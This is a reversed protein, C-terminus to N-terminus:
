AVENTARSEALSGTEWVDSGACNFTLTATGGATDKAQVYIYVTGVTASPLTVTAAGAGTYDVIEVGATGTINTGTATDTVTEGYIQPAMAIGSGSRQFLGKTHDYLLTPM